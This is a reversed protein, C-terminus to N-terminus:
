LAHKSEVVIHPETFNIEQGRDAMIEIMKALIDHRNHNREVVEQHRRHVVDKALNEMKELDGGAGRFSQSVLVSCIAFMRLIAHVSKIYRGVDTRKSMFGFQSGFFLEGLVDFAYRGFM